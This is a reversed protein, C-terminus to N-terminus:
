GTGRIETHDGVSLEGAFNEIVVSDGIFSGSLTSGAIRANAGVITDRVTSGLLSSGASVSVNPGITSGTCEVGDEIYVPEVITCGALGAPKRARGKELLVRNTALLTDLKGADYWGAVDLVKLKAGHDAMYQFADTLYWEGKNQPGRMVHEIGEFLLKWNKVYQLGINARKSLPATPKEVIKTMHGAADAVIVGFRQWDEVEKAWLIGDDASSRIVSLDADFITDVFIILVPGNVRPRALAVAGATGDQVTQEIFTSKMDAYMSRVHSEVAEKLHGTIYIVEEVDGLRRVDDLVYDMVPKGAVKLLPKPVTHTQPRLRTGKGALPIIVKM